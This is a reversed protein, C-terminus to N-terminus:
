KGKDKGSAYEFRRKLEEIAIHEYIETTTIRTHRLLDRIDAIHIGQTRWYVACSHRLSHFHVDERELASRVAEKFARSVRYGATRGWLPSEPSRNRTYRELVGQVQPVIPILDERLVKTSIVRITGRELDIDRVRLRMIEGLRLGEYFAFRWVDVMWRRGPYMHEWAKCVQELEEETIWSPLQKGAKPLKPLPLEVSYRESAWRLFARLRRTYTRRSELALGSHGIELRMQSLDRLPINGLSVAWRRLVLATERHHKQSWEAAGEALYIELAELLGTLRKEEGPLSKTWPDYEGREYMGQLRWMYATAQRKTWARTDLSIVVEPPDRRRDRFRIHWRNGVRRLSPM